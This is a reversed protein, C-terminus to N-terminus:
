KHSGIIKDIGETMLAKCKENYGALCIGRLYNYPCIGPNDEGAKEYEILMINSPEDRYFKEDDYCEGKEVMLVAFVNDKRQLCRIRQHLYERDIMKENFIAVYRKSDDGVTYEDFLADVGRFIYDDVNGETIEGDIFYNGYSIDQTQRLNGFIEGLMLRQYYGWILKEEFDRGNDEPWNNFREIITAVCEMRFISYLLKDHLM